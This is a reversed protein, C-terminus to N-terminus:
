FTLEEQQDAKCSAPLFSLNEGKKYNHLYIRRAYSNQKWFIKQIEDITAQINERLESIPVGSAKAGAKLIKKMDRKKLGIM